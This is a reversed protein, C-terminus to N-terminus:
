LHMESRVEPRVASIKLEAHSADIMATVPGYTSLVYYSLLTENASQLNQLM